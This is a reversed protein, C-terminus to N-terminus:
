LDAGRFDSKKREALHADCLTVYWHDVERMEGPQGCVRCTCLSAKSAANVLARVSDLAAIDPSTRKTFHGVTGDSSQIDLHLDPDDGTTWYFRLEAYKEKIQLIRFAECGQPGLVKEIDSCLKDVIGYWGPEVHSLAVPPANRFLAPHVRIIRALNREVEDM